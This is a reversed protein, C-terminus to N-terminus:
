EETELLVMEGHRNAIKERVKLLQYWRVFAEVFVISMLGMIVISFTVLLWLGKPLYNYVINQYGATLTVPIMFLGPVATTWAYKAKGHRILMTTGVILACTALLQNAMGFLPWITSIDGTFVLYGWAATFLLSTILIGPMWKKEEFRPWLKGLMEQLMYRGVRTGTDVATLIFVAEFMIAFHYWYAALTKM